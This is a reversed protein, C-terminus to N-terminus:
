HNTVVDAVGATGWEWAQGSTTRGDWSDYLAWKLREGEGWREDTIVEQLQRYFHTRGGHWQHLSVADSRVVQLGPVTRCRRVFDSDEGGVGRLYREDYGGVAEWLSRPCLSIYNTVDTQLTRSALPRNRCLGVMRDDLNAGYQDLAALVEPGVDFTTSFALFPADAPSQALLEDYVNAWPLVEAGQLFLLRGRAHRCAVNNTAAPNNFFRAEGTRREFAAQDFRVYTWPVASSYKRLEGLVDQTSGDDVLVVEFPM